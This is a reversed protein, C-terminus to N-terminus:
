SANAPHSCEMESRSSNGRTLARLGRGLQELLAAVGGALDVELALEPHVVRPRFAETLKRALRSDHEGDVCRNRAEHTVDLPILLLAHGDPHEVMRGPDRFRGAGLEDDKMGAEQEAALPLVRDVGDDLLEALEPLPELAFVARHREPDLDRAADALEPRRFVHERDGSAVPQTRGTTSKAWRCATVSPPKVSVSAKASIRSPASSTSSGPAGKWTWKESM